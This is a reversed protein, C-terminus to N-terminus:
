RKGDTEDAPVAVRMGAHDGPWGNCHGVEHRLVIEYTWGTPQLISDEVVWVRCTYPEGNLTARRACGLAIPFPTKPCEKQMVEANGRTITLIGQYPRDFEEPPLARWRGILRPALTDERSAVDPRPLPMPVHPPPAIHIPRPPRPPEAYPACVFLAVVPLSCVIV